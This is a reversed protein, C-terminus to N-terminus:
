FGLKCSADHNNVHIYKYLVKRGADPNLTKKKKINGLTFLLYDCKDFSKHTLFWSAWKTYPVQICPYYKTYIYIICQIINQIDVCKHTPLAGVYVKSCVITWSFINMSHWYRFIVKDICHKYMRWYKWAFCWIHCFRKTTEM